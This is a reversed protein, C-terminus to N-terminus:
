MTPPVARIMHSAARSYVAARLRNHGWPRNVGDLNFGRVTRVTDHVTFLTITMLWIIEDSM